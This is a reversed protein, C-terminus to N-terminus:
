QPIFRVLSVLIAIFASSCLVFVISKHRILLLYGSLLAIVLAIPKLSSVNPLAINVLGFSHTQVISFLTHLAFWLSLNAIVGVVAATIAQLAGALRPAKTLHALWPAGAFIWLFCPAFTM